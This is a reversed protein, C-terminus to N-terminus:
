QNIGGGGVPGGGCAPGSPCGIASPCAPISQCAHVTPCAPTLPQCVGPHTPCFPTQPPCVAPNLTLCPAHVSQCLPTPPPCLPSLQCVAPHSPCFPTQPHCAAPNTPCAPTLPHCVIPGTPHCVAPNPTLCPAHVSQCVPTPHCLPPSTPCAFLPTPCAPATVTPLMGMAAAHAAPDGGGGPFGGCAISPCAGASPCNVASAIPCNPTFHPICGPQHITVPCFAPPTPCGHLVTPCQTVQTCFTTLPPATCFFPAQSPCNFPSPCVFNTPCRITLVTIPFDCTTLVATNPAGGGPGGGAAAAAAGIPGEFFKAKTRSPGVKGHILEADSKIWVHSGGLSSHEKPIAQTHLIADNPIEVYNKLEPDFHLRTHEPESSKGLYGTLLITDPPQKPDKVVKSVFDDLPINAKNEAM